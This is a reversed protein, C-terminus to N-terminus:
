DAGTTLPYGKLRLRQELAEAPLPRSLYYGQVEDCGAARLFQLQNETEVGEALVEMNLSRGIAIIARVMDGREAEVDIGDVFFRDIKLLHPEFTRLYKLSAYGTGFDDIALKIGWQRLLRLQSSVKEVDRIALSETVELTIQRADVGTERLTHLIKEVFLEDQFQYPSVNISMRLSGFGAEVWSVQQRCATKMVWEGIAIIMGTEEAVPIFEVPSVSGLVPHNWRILAEVGVIGYTQINQQLQYHLSIEGREIAGRLEHELEVKYALREGFCPEFFLSKQHRNKKAEHMAMDASRMLEDATSGDRPYLAAGISASVYLMTGNLALPKKFVEEIAAITRYAEVEGELPDVLVTFEDGGQRALLRSSPIYERLRDAVIQLLLDGVTHGMSDNVHKFRDLDFFLLALQGGEREAREVAENLEADFKRRNPLGTLPDHSAEHEKIEVTHTLRNLLYDNEVFTLILRAIILLVAFASGMVMVNFESLEDLIIAFLAVLSVYPLLRRMWGLRSALRASMRRPRRTQRGTLSELGAATLLLISATWTADVPSGLWYNGNLQMYLYTSDGLALLLVGALFTTDTRSSGMSQNAFLLLSLLFLIGLDMIPYCLNLFAPLWHEQRMSTHFLPTIILSWSFVATTSMFISADLFYQMLRLSKLRQHVLVLLGAFLLVGQAAWFLDTIGPSPLTMRDLLTDALLLLLSILYCLGSCLVFGWFLRNKAQPHRTVRLLLLMCALIPLINLHGIWTLATENEGYFSSLLFHLVLYGAAIAYFIRKFKM